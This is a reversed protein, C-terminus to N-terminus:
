CQFGSKVKGECVGLVVDVVTLVKCPKAAQLLPQAVNRVVYQVSWALLASVHRSFRGRVAAASGAAAVATRILLLLLM